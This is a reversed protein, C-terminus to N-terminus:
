PGGGSAWPILALVEAPPPEGFGAAAGPHRERGTGAGDQGERPEGQGLATLRLFLAEDLCYAAWPDCIGLLM